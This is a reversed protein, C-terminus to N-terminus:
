FHRAANAPARSQDPVIRSPGSEQCSPSSSTKSMFSSRTLCSIVLILSSTAICIFLDIWESEPGRGVVEASLATHLKELYYGKPSVIGPAALWPAEAFKKVDVFSARGCTLRSIEKTFLLATIEAFQDLASALNVILYKFDRTQRGSAERDYQQKKFRKAPTYKSSHSKRIEDVLDHAEALCERMGRVLSTLFSFLWKNEDDLFRPADDISFFSAAEYFSFVNRPLRGNDRDELWEQEASKISLPASVVGVVNLMEDTLRM